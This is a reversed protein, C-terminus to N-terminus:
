YLDQMVNCFSCFFTGPLRRASSMLAQKMSAPNIISGRHLVGSLLLTVAGAVVPSAVSTGRLSRCGSEKDSGRVNHGYSVIDPKVRGYGGPLEWTTMGVFIFFCIFIFICRLFM